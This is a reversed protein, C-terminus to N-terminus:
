LFSVLFAFRLITPDNDKQFVCTKNNIIIRYTGIDERMYTLYNSGGLNLLIGGDKMRNGELEVYSNNM